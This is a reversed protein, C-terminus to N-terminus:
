HGPKEELGLGRQQAGALPDEGVLAIAGALELGEQGLVADCQDAGGVLAVSAAHGAREELGQSLEDFRDIGGELGLEVELTVPASGWTPDKGAHELAQERQGSGYPVVGLGSVTRQPREDREIVASGKSNVM